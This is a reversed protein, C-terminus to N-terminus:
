ENTKQALLIPIGKALSIDQYQHHIDISDAENLRSTALALYEDRKDKRKEKSAMNIYSSALSTLITVTDADNDRKSHM